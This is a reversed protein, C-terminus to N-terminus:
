GRHGLALVALIGSCDQACTPTEGCHQCPPYVYGCARTLLEEYTGVDGCWQCKFRRIPVRGRPTVATLWNHPNLAM